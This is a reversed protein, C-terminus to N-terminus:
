CTKRRGPLSPFCGRGKFSCDWKLFVDYKDKMEQLKVKRRGTRGPKPSLAAAAPFALHPARGSGRAAPCRRPCSRWGRALRGAWGAAATPAWRRREGVGAGRFRRAARAGGGGPGTRSSPPPPPLYGPLPQQSWSSPGSLSFPLRTHPPVVSRPELFFPTCSVRDESLFFDRSLPPSTPSARPSPSFPGLCSTASRPRSRAVSLLSGPLPGAM